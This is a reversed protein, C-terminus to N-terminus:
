WYECGENHVVQLWWGEELLEVVPLCVVLQLQLGRPRTFEDWDITKRSLSTNHLNGGRNNISLPHLYKTKVSIVLIEQGVPFALQREWQCMQSRGGTVHGSMEQMDPKASVAVWM